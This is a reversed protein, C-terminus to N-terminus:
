RRRRMLILGGLGLLSLSAPEPILTLMPGSGSQPGKFALVNTADAAELEPASLLLSLDSEAAIAQGAAALLAESAFVLEVDDGFASVDVEITAIPDPLFDGGPNTWPEGLAANTWTAQADDFPRTLLHLNLTTLGFDGTSGASRGNLTLTAAPPTLGVLGSLDFAMLARRAHGGSDRGIFLPDATEIGREGSEIWTSAVKESGEITIIEASAPVAHAIVLAAALIAWQNSPRLRMARAPAVRPM